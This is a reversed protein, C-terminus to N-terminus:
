VNEADKAHAEAFANARLLDVYDDVIRHLIDDFTSLEDLTVILSRYKSGVDMTHKDSGVEHILWECAFMGDDLGEDDVLMVDVFHYGQIRRDNLAFRERWLTGYLTPTRPDITVRTARSLENLQPCLLETLQTTTM